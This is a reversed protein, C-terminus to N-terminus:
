ALKARLTELKWRSAGNSGALKRQRAAAVLRAHEESETEVPTFAKVKALLTALGWRSAGASGPVKLERVRAVLREHTFDAASKALLSAAVTGTAFAPAEPNVLITTAGATLADAAQKLAATLGAEGNYVMTSFRFGAQANHERGQKWGSFSGTLAETNGETPEVRVRYTNGHLHRYGVRGKDTAVVVVYSGTGETGAMYFQASHNSKM